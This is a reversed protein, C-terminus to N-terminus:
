NIRLNQDILRNLHIMQVREQNRCGMIHETQTTCTGQQQAQFAADARKETNGQLQTAKGQNNNADQHLDTQVVGVLDLVHRGGSDGDDDDPDPNHNEEDGEEAAAAGPFLVVAHYGRHRLGAVDSGHMQLLLKATKKTNIAYNGGRLKGDQQRQHDDNLYCCGDGAVDEPVLHSGCTPTVQRCWTLAQEGTNRRGRLEVVDDLVAEGIHNGVVLVSCSIESLSQVFYLLIYTCM